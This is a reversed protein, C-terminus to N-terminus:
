VADDSQMEEELLKMSLKEYYETKASLYESVPDYYWYATLALVLAIWEM